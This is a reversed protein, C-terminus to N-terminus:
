VEEEIDAFDKEVEIEFGGESFKEGAIMGIGGRCQLFEDGAFVFEFGALDWDIVVGLPSEFSEVGTGGGGLEMVCPAVNERGIKWHPLDGALEVGCAVAQDQEGVGVGDVAGPYELFVRFKGDEVARNQGEFGVGDFGLRFDVLVGDVFVREDGFVSKVDVVEGGVDGGAVLEAEAGVLVVEVVVGGELVPEFFFQRGGIVISRLSM